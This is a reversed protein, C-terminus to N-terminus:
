ERNGASGVATIQRELLAVPFGSLLSGLPVEGQWKGSGFVDLWTGNPLEIETDGWGKRAALRVPLRCAVTVVAEGRCFAVAHEAAAGRAPLKEYGGAFAPQQRGRLALARQVVVLKSLGGGDEALWLRAPDATEVETLLRRRVGYDVPRRNDPDVLSWDWVESGQYLDPVGSATLTLLKQSLANVWGPRVIEDVFDRVTDTFEDDSLVERAWVALAQEYVPDPDTWSTYVKAERVAKTLYATLRDIDIPWAGVMTQYALWETNRDPPPVGRHRGHHEHWRQVAAAWESPREALVALRARVDESRKTDHTSTAVLAEPRKVHAAAVREHFAEVGGDLRGPDGGVENRSCLPVWRYFAMDEVAKAMVAATLQQFHLALAEEEAGDVRLLLLDRLFGLLEADLEPHRLGAVLVAAEVTRVDDPSPATEPSVYTRYVGFAAAVATLCSRLDRRTSDRLRRRGECIRAFSADLRRVDAALPGDLTAEKAETVVDEFRGELGTFAQYAAVLEAWGEPDVLLDGVLKLWDYGTTGAVPWPPLQEHGELIKEVVLWAHPSVAVLRELYGGPDYLGDVHDVRVGDLEVRQLWSLVLQHSDDFVQPDEVRIAALNNIDFFRRYDLEEAATRWWALRYNQRQMLADFADADRNVADCAEDIVTAVDPSAAILGDLRQRLIEKDRHRERVSGVDTDTAPPLRGFATALSELQDRIEGPPLATAAEALLTDVSRPAVPFAHDRYRVVFGGGEREVRLEEAELVRGYHDALVPLLVTNRLKRDPPDWDVDFSSAYLSAPGNELVDWWWANQRSGVAMHNPVIDLLHGLGRDALADRLRRRGAEGGLEDNVRSHDVVDYGHTSGPAAQLIPSTYLHSVGLRQLYDTVAAADDFTFGRHLQVRYTARRPM